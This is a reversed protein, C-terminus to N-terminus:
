LRGLIQAQMEMLQPTNRIRRMVDRPPKTLRCMGDFVQFEGCGGCISIDGPQPPRPNQRMEMTNMQHHRPIREQCKWCIDAPTTM